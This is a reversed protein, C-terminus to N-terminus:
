LQSDLFRKFSVKDSCQYYDDLFQRALVKEGANLYNVYVAGIASKLESSVSCDKASGSWSNEIYSVIQENEQLFVDYVQDNVNYLMGDDFLLCNVASFNQQENKSYLSDFDQNGVLLVTRGLEESYFPAPEYVGSYVSDIVYFSDTLSYLFLIYLPLDKHMQKERIVYQQASDIGLSVTFEAPDNFIREFVVNGKGDAVTVKQGSLTASFGSNPVHQGFCVIAFYM